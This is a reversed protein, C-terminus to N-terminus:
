CGTGKPSDCSRFSPSAPVWSEPGTRTEDVHTPDSCLSHNRRSMSQSICFCHSKVDENETRPRSRVRPSSYSDDKEIGQGFRLLSNRRVTVTSYWSLNPIAM